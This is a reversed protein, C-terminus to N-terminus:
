YGQVIWTFLREETVWFSNKVQILNARRPSCKVWQRNLGGCSIAIKKNRRLYLIGFPWGSPDNPNGNGCDIWVSGKGYRAILEDVMVSLKISKIKMYDWSFNNWGSIMGTM